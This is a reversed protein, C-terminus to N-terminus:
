ASYVIREGRRVVAIDASLALSRTDCEYVRAATCTGTGKAAEADRIALAESLRYRPRKGMPHGFTVVKYVMEDEGRALAVLARSHV